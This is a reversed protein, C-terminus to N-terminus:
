IFFGIVDPISVAVKRSTSYNSKFPNQRRRINYLVIPCDLSQAWSLLNIRGWGGSSPSLDLGRFTTTKHRRRTCVLRHISDLILGITKYFLAEVLYAVANRSREMCITFQLAEPKNLQKQNMQEQQKEKHILPFSHLTTQLFVFVFYMCRAPSTVIRTDQRFKLADKKKNQSCETDTFKTHTYFETESM